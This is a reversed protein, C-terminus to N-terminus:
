PCPVQFPFYFFLLLICFCNKPLGPFFFLAFYIVTSSSLQNMFSLTLGAVVPQGLKRGVSAM